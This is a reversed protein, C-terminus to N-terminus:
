RQIERDRDLEYPLDLLQLSPGELTGLHVNGEEAAEAQLVALLEINQEARAAIVVEGISSGHSPSFLATGPEPLENADLQLRYLRRKLKGLYQMRAVIEQGTYCGKKFSVGGIAQLNLMQPIFLERTAPMVQGIGARIQGLLWPNLDAEAVVERLRIKLADAQEAPAWLEVRGPSVRIAILSEHRAVCDVDAPLELGLGSLATDANELGFRVWAASEDTLRAKSFVAYKKLDALQPELLETAMAMLVGDGQLVIRFSSQMRGKQTCRAGLSAREDSLYNLNCTLQGQLFKSADVGRVALVGEHSLTCFFASDAM